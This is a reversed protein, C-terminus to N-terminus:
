GIASGTLSGNIVDDLYDGMQMHEAEFIKKAPNKIMSVGACIMVGGCIPGAVGASIM